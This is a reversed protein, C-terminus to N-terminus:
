INGFRRERNQYEKIADILANKDFEPWYIKPFYLEAYSLQWLLFNSLRMEGSTRILLDPEPLVNTYLNLSISNEDIDNLTIEQKVAAQAIKKVADVIEQRAGYNIALVLTMATNNKTLNQSREIKEQIYKPIPDRRGIVVFRINKKQMDKIEKDLYMDLFRMLVQVEQKPRNWNETSFAFFTVVKVGLDLSANIVEKLRKMGVRHGETRPLGKEKAWRGNGDMVFAIHKPIRDKKGFMKINIYFVKCKRIGGSRLFVVTM